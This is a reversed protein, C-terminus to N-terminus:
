PLRCFEGPVFASIAESWRPRGGLHTSLATNPNWGGSMALADAAIQLKRGRADRVALASVARAGRTHLVQAGLMVPTHTRKAEALLDPRVDGRADIIAAVDVQARALAAGTTWGDDCSTLIAVRRGPTVSFRHLYTRVAGAMMVGPRDNGGFVLPREIAGSALVTRKAVIKWFRQRPQHPAPIHVHDSVRELAAYTNGDYAGFVTTRMMLRVQPLSALEAQTRQAWVAGGDGDVERADANLRGGSLFDEDCLIVRAGSRGASL